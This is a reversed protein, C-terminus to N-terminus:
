VLFSVKGFKQLIDIEYFIDSIFRESYNYSRYRISQLKNRKM